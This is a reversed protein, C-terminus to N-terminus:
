VKNRNKPNPEELKLSFKALKNNYQTFQTCSKYVCRYIINPLVSLEININAKELEQCFSNYASFFADENRACIAFTLTIDRAAVKANNTIVRDGHEQRSSNTIYEKMPAPTMLASIASSDFEIGWMARADQSNIKVTM